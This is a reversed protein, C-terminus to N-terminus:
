ASRRTSPSAAASTSRSPRAHALLPARVSAPPGSSRGRRSGARRRRAGGRPRRVVRADDRRPDRDRAQGRPLPAHVRGAQAPDGLPDGPRRRRAGLAAPRGAADPVLPARRRARPRQAGRAGRGGRLRSRRLRLRPRARGGGPRATRRGVRALAPSPQPPRDRGRRGQIGQRARRPGARPVDAPDAGLAVVLREYGIEFTGGLTEAVVTRRKPDRSTVRGLLLEAHPCMQRLPVVVHRPELTGAAAEPLLPRTSCSTTPTSSPRAASASCGRSTRAPSAAASSSREERRRRRAPDRADGGVIAAAPCAAALLDPAQEGLPSCTTVPPEVLDHSRGDRRSPPRPVVIAIRGALGASCGTASWTTTVPIPWARVEGDRRRSATIATPPAAARERLDRERHPEATDDARTLRRRTAVESADLTERREDAGVDRM